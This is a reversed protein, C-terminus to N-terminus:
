RNVGTLHFFIDELSATPMQHTERLEDLTGTAIVKGQHLLVIRDCISEALSLIHTSMLIGTGEKKKEQLLATFSKTALPDLGIFPEDVILYDPNVLFACLIMLKQQMGKSFTQPFWRKVREMRFVPLLKEMRSEIEETSLGYAKGTLLLHEELTLEEYFQPTEAIYAIRQRFQQVNQQLTQHDLLVKGELPHMLGLIHKITTSKGAGNLGILGTIEGPHISFSVHHLVPLQRSYGGTINQVSLM